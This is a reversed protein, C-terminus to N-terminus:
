DGSLATITGQNVVSNTSSGSYIMDSNPDFSNPLLTSLVCGSAYIVGTGAVNIGRPNFIYINGNPASLTGNLNSSELGTVKNFVTFSQGGAREFHVTEMQSISFSNWDLVTVNSNTRINMQNGTTNTLVPAGEVLTPAAGNNPLAFVSGASLVSLTLLLNRM